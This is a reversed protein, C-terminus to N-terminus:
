LRTIYTIYKSFLSKETLYTTQKPCYHRFYVLYEVLALERMQLRALGSRLLLDSICMLVLTKGDGGHERQYSQTVGM